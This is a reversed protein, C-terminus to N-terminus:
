APADMCAASSRAVPLASMAMLQLPPCAGAAAVAAAAAVMVSGLSEGEHQHGGCACARRSQADPKEYTLSTGSRAGGRLGAWPVDVVRGRCTRGYTTSATSVSSCLTSRTSKM